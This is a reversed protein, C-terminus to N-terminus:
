KGAAIAADLAAQDVGCKTLIAQVDAASATGSAGINTVLTALQPIAGAFAEILALIAAATM